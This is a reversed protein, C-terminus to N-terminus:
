RATLLVSLTHADVPRSFLFGQGEECALTLLVKRQNRTEVDKAM